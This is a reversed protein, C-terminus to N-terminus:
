QDLWLSFMVSVAALSILVLLLRNRWKRLRRYDKIKERIRHNRLILFRYDSDLELCWDAFPNSWITGIESTEVNDISGKEVMQRAWRNVTRKCNQVSVNLVSLIMGAFAAVVFLVQDM